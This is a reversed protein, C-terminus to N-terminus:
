KDFGIKLFDKDNYILKINYKLGYFRVFSCFYANANCKALVTFSRSKAERPSCCFTKATALWNVKSPLKLGAFCGRVTCTSKM